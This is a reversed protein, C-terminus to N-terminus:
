GENVSFVYPDEAEGRASNRVRVEGPLVHPAWCLGCIYVSLDTIGQASWPGRALRIAITM